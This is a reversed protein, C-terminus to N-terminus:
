PNCHVSIIPLPLFETKSDSDITVECTSMVNKTITPEPETVNWSPRSDEKMVSYIKVM